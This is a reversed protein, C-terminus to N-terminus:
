LTCGMTANDALDAGTSADDAGVTLNNIDDNSWSLDVNFTAQDPTVDAAAKITLTNSFAAFGLSLGVVGAILGVIAIVKSSRNEM